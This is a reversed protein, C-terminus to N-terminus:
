PIKGLMQDLEQNVLKAREDWYSSANSAPQPFAITVSLFTTMFLTLDCVFM